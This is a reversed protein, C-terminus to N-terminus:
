AIREENLMTLGYLVDSLTGYGDSDDNVLLNQNFKSDSGYWSLMEDVVIREYKRKLEQKRKYEKHSIM